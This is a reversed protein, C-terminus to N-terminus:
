PILSFVPEEAAEFTFNRSILELGKNVGRNTATIIAEVTIREAGPQDSTDLVLTATEVNRLSNQSITQGDDDPSYHCDISGSLSRIGHLMRAHTDNVNTRDVTATTENASWSTIEAIETGNISVTGRNGQVVTSM